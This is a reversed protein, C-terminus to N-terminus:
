EFLNVAAYGVSIIHLQQCIHNRKEDKSECSKNRRFIDDGYWGDTIVSISLDNCSQFYFLPSSNRENEVKTISIDTTKTKLSGWSNRKRRKESKREKMENIHNDSYSTNIFIYEQKKRNNNNGKHMEM